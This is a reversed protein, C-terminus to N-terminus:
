DASQGRTPSRCPLRPLAPWDRSPERPQVGSQDVSPGVISLWRSGGGPWCYNLTAAFAVDPDLAVPLHSTGDMAHVRCLAVNDAFWRIMYIPLTAIDASVNNGRLAPEAPFQRALERIRRSGCLEAALAHGAANADREMPISNYVAGFENLPVVKAAVDEALGHLAYLDPHANVQLVHQLEHRLTAALRGDEVVKPVSVEVRSVADRVFRAEVCDLGSDATVLLQVDDGVLGAHSLACAWIQEIEM